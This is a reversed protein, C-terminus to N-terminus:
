AGALDRREFVRLAAAAAVAALALMIAAAPAQLSEAPVPAVHHFPSIGLLWGPVGVVGGIAEWLFSAGVLIYAIAVGARPALALALAGLALFLLAAPLCNASAELMRAFSVDAGQSVAGAWSLVGAALALVAVAGAVLALRGSLWRGRSLPLVLLTELRQEAEDERVAGLQFCVFLSLAFVVFLFELGLFSTATNAATGFKEFQERLSASLGAAVSDAIGGLIVAFVAVGVLWAFLGGRVTRLALATPSSLLAFRPPATDRAALLGTGIDRREAIRAAVVLMATTAVVPLVLVLPRAGTFARMEEAWGLPTTWRLWGLGSATDAVMRLLLAAALASGAMATAVRRAPAIQSALAGVGAFVPLPSALALALYASGALGARGLAIGAFLCLWLVAAGIGVGALSGWFATRRALPGALLLEQRGSDEEARLARVAGLLGWLGAFVTFAGLRWAAWGGVHLLDHPVGYFLWLGKNAGFTRALELREELTPYTSRYTLVQAASGYFFLLAFAITRTRADGLTRRAIARAQAM